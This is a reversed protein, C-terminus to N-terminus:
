FDADVGDKKSAQDGSSNAYLDKLSVWRNFKAGWQNSIKVRGHKADYDEVNVVHGGYGPREENGEPLIPKHNDDVALSIPFQKQDKFQKLKQGLEEASNVSEVGSNNSIPDILHSSAGNYEKGLQALEHDTLGPNNMPSTIWKGEVLQQVKIVNGSADLSREGTDGPIERDPTRQAYSEPPTRRQLGDNARTLDLVQTAYSRDGDKTKITSEEAGPSLSEKDIKIVKGDPATWQGNLETSAAMEAAKAPSKFITEKVITTVNCTNHNGQYTQEPHATQHMLQEALLARYSSPVISDSDKANLLRGMQAYTKSIEDPPLHQKQAREEFAAMDKKFNARQKEPIHDKISQDLDKRSQIMGADNKYDYPTKDFTKNGWHHESGDPNRQYNNGDKAEVKITGDPTHTTTKEEPTGQAEIRVTKGSKADYTENYNDAPKPGWGQQTYSGDKGPVKRYGSEHGEADKKEVTETGNELYVSRTGDKDIVVTSKDNGNSTITSGDRNHAITVNSAKDYSADIKENTPPYEAKWNGAQDTVKTLGDSGVGTTTGNKDTRETYTYQDKFIFTKKYNDSEFPGHHEEKYSGNHDLPERHCSTGDASNSEDVTGDKHVSIHENKNEPNTYIFSGDSTRGPLDLKAGPSPKDGNINNINSTLSIYGQVEEPSANKGLKQQAIKSMTEGAVAKHHTELLPVEEKSKANSQQLKDPAETPKKATDPAEPKKQGSAEGNKAQEGRYLSATDPKALSATSGNNKDGGGTDKPAALLEHADLNPKAAELQSGTPKKTREPTTLADAAM